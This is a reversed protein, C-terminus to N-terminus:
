DPPDIIMSTRRGTKLVSNFVANYAGDVDAVSNASRANRGPNLGEQADSAAVEADTLFEKGANAAASRELPVDYMVFWTGQLDPDGWPTRLSPTAKTAAKSKSAAKPATAPTQAISIAALSVLVAVGTLWVKKVESLIAGPSLPILARIPVPLQHIVPHASDYPAHWDGNLRLTDIIHPKARM